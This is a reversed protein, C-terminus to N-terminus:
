HQDDRPPAPDAYGVINQDDLDDASVPPQTNPALGPGWMAPAAPAPIPLNVETAQPPSPRRNQHAHWYGAQDSTQRLVADPATPAPWLQILYHDIPPEGRRRPGAQHASDM